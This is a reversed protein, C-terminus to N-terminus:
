RLRASMTLRYARGGSSVSAGVGQVYVHEDAFLTLRFGELLLGLPHAVLRGESAEAVAQVSAGVGFLQGTVQVQVKGEGSGLLSAEVGTPLAERVAERTMEAQASLASGRQNLEANRLRVSGVRVSAARLDMRSVGRGEWLLSAAQQPSMSLSGATVEVSNADGWLLEIAPWASVSVSRVQGYRGVRASIRSAAIRPLALQAAVALLVLM